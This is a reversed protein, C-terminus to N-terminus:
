VNPVEPAPTQFIHTQSEAPAMDLTSPSASASPNKKRLQIHLAVFALVLSPVGVGLGTALAIIDSKSLGEDEEKKGVPQTTSEFPATAGTLISSVKMNITAKSAATAPITMGAITQAPASSVEVNATACNGDYLDLM